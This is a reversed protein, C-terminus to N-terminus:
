KRYMTNRKDSFSTLNLASV